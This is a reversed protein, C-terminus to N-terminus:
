RGLLAKAMRGFLREIESGFPNDHVMYTWTASPRELGADAPTWDPREIRAAMFTEATDADAEDLMQQFAPVAVRHFEDLPDQRGLARLHVGDRVNALMGLHDAWGRDLHHLAIQRAVEEAAEEGIAAVVEAYREAVTVTELGGDPEGDEDTWQGAAVLSRDAPFRAKGERLLEAAADTTLLATRRRALVQRQREILVGYRWTNRHIEFDVGEAVRQAHGVAWDVHPGTVRGDGATTGGIGDGHRVILEDERSVFFVSGGPDGQRGARGRLQDDVRRSDHRGAGIVYLGGLEAVAARDAGDSGGLRIDTGRGAMQTSVTVAGRGGAEAIVAAEHADNKANLVTCAIGRDQLLAALRESEAVDLTGVLVPRGTEHAAAVEAALAEEKEEITAYVRDPEDVRVNPTNPPIVAVELRYFERLEDGVTAATGTMGAVTPYLAIFAQVTITALIEGEDTAALGEKAEVAAQLGDPWRRRRAVRGRFEDVLAIRGDKVIYDVDVSLLTRAHLALNVATLRHLNEPAYLHIGGWAREVLAAGVDTLQVNRGDDIVEFDRGPRMAAVLTAAASADSTADALSGAVVLPVRAEDILISDAEDVIVTYLGPMVTDEARLVQQDRLFDFGAESVSVYTVDCRYAAAREDHTCGEGVSGVSLGLMRYVPGMWRADRDALYDNATLVQVQSGRVVYGYAAIVAALTKGEGTAMEVVNGQLMAMAGLLQVDFAREGLARRGAERGTACIDALDEADIPLPEALPAQGDRPKSIIERLEIARATFEADTLATLEDELELIRPLIAEFRDLSVTTGPRQM